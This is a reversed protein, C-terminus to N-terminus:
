EGLGGACWNRWMSRFATEVTEAYDTGNCLSSNLVQLRLWRRLESIRPTDEALAVACRVYQDKTPAAFDGLGVQSMLAAAVRSVFGDGWLAIVPAGMALAEFTTTAGNFPFPDLAIDIQRYLALHDDLQDDSGLLILRDAALGFSSFRDRWIQAGGDDAFYNRYKLVLKSNPTAKLIELWLQAVDENMKEPKNFCGFSVYGNDICPAEGPEPFESPPAFQYFVPLRHLSETFREASDKPHLYEDTLWYDMEELGSTACDHFSIQVPASRHQAILSRNLNFRGALFVLIDVQDRRIREALVADSLGRTSIWQDALSRFRASV